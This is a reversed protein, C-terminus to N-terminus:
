LFCGSYFCYMLPFSLFSFVIYYYFSIFFFFIVKPKGLERGSKVNLNYINTSSIVLCRIQTKGKRNVKEVYFHCQYVEPALICSGAYM